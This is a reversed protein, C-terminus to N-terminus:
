WGYKAFLKQVLEYRPTLQFGLREFPIISRKIVRLIAFALLFIDSELGSQYYLKAIKFCPRRVIEAHRISMHATYFHRASFLLASNAQLAVLALRQRKRGKKKKVNYKIYYLM